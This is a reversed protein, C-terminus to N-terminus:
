KNDGYDLPLVLLLCPNEKGWLDELCELPIFGMARYFERTKAYNYDPNRYDLTKVELLKYGNSKAYRKCENILTKGIGQRHYARKVGMVHIEITFPNHPELSIFGLANEGEYYVFMLMRKSNEIYEKTALPIGFWEPLDHLITSCIFEKDGINKIEKIM